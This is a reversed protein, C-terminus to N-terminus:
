ALFGSRRHSAQVTTSAAARYERCEKPPESTRRTHALGPRRVICRTQINASFLRSPHFFWEQGGEDRIFGFGRDRVLRKTMGNAM